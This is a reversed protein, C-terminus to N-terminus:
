ELDIVFTLTTLPITSKLSLVQTPSFYEPISNRSVGPLVGAEPNGSSPVGTGLIGALLFGPEGSHLKRHGTGPDEGEEPFHFVESLSFRGYKRIHFLVMRGRTGQDTASVEDGPSDEQDNKADRSRGYSNRFALLTEVHYKNM